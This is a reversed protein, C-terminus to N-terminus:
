CGGRNTRRARWRRISGGGKVRGAAAAPRAVAAAAAVAQRTPRHVQRPAATHV